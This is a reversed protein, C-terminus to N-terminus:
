QYLSASLYALQEPSHDSHVNSVKDWNGPNWRFSISFIEDIRHVIDVFHDHGIFIWDCCMVEM